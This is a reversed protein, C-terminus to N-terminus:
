KRTLYELDAEDIKVNNLLAAQTQSYPAVEVQKAFASARANKVSANEELQLMYKAVIYDITNSINRYEAAAIKRLNEITSPELTVSLSQKAM